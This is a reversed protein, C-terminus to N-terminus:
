NFSVIVKSEKIESMPISIENEKWEKKKRGEIREKKRQVLTLMENAVEKLEGKESKGSQMVVKLQRGVNKKYQLMHRIPKDLGPSSVKLEFDEEERDLENEIYRSIAVCEEISISPAKDVEVMIQNVPTVEIEVIFAESGEIKEKVLTEIQSKTIMEYIFFLPAKSGEKWKRAAFICCNTVTIFSSASSNKKM